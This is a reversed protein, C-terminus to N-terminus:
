RVGLVLNESKIVRAVTGSLADEILSRITSEYGTPIFTELNIARYDSGDSDRVILYVTGSEMILVDGYGVSELIDKQVELEIKM